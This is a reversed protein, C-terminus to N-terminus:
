DKKKRPNEKRREELWAEISAYRRGEVSPCFTELGLAGVHRSHGFTKTKPLHCHKCINFTSKRDYKRKASQGEENRSNEAGRKLQNFQTTRPIPIPVPSNYGVVRVSSTSPSPVTVQSSTNKRQSPQNPRLDFVHPQQTGSHLAIGPPITRAPPLPEEAELPAPEPLAQSLIAREVRKQKDNWRNFLLFAIIRLTSTLLFFPLM